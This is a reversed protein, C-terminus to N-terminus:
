GVCVYTGYSVLCLSTRDTGLITSARLYCYLICTVLVIFSRVISRPLRWRDHISTSIEGVLRGRPEPPFAIVLRFIPSCLPTERRCKANVALIWLFRAAPIKNARFSFIFISEPIKKQLFPVCICKERFIARSLRLFHRARHCGGNYM